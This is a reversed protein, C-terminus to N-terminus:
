QEVHEQQYAEALNEPDTIVHWSQTSQSPSQTGPPTMKAKASPSSYGHDNELVQHKDEPRLIAQNITVMLSEEAEIKKFMARCIDITPKYGRMLPELQNLMKQVMAPSDNRTTNGHKGERPVYKLRLHCVQCDVWQGHPNSLPKGAQHQNYCPWQHIQCRPDRPDAYVARSSDFPAPPAKKPTAETVQKVMAEVDAPTLTKPAM